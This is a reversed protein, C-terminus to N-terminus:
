ILGINFYDGTEKDIGIDIAYQEKGLENFVIYGEEEDYEITMNHKALIQSVEYLALTLEIKRKSNINKTALPVLKLLDGIEEIGIDGGRYKQEGILKVSQMIIEGKSIFSEKKM